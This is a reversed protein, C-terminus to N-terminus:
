DTDGATQVAHSISTSTTLQTVLKLDYLHIPTDLVVYLELGDAFTTNRGTARPSTVALGNRFPGETKWQAKAPLLHISSAWEVKLPSPNPLPPEGATPQAFAM